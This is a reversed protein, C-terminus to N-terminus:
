THLILFLDSWTVWHTQTQTERNMRKDTMQLVYQQQRHPSITNAASVQTSKAAATAIYKIKIHCLSITTLLKLNQKVSNIRTLAADTFNQSTFLLLFIKEFYSYRESDLQKCNTYSWVHSFTSNLSERSKRLIHRTKILASAVSIFNTHCFLHDFCWLRRHSHQLCLLPPAAPAGVHHPKPLLIGKGATQHAGACGRCNYRNKHM